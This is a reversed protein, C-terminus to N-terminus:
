QEELKFQQSIADLVLHQRETSLVRQILNMKLLLFIRRSLLSSSITLDSDKIQTSNHFSLMKLAEEDDLYCIDSFLKIARSYSVQGQLKVLDELPVSKLYGNPNVGIENSKKEILSSIDEFYSQIEADDDLTWDEMSGFNALSQKTGEDFSDLWQEIASDSLM